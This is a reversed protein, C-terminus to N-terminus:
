KSPRRMTWLSPGGAVPRLEQDVEYGFRGYYALNDQKQTELYCDLGDKDANELMEQQLRTGIGSRQASPDTVLLLLYWLQDKPHAKDIALMYRLGVAMARPNLIMARGAGRLQRVQARMPLPYAGPPVVASVGLLRGTDPHRAGQLQAAPTLSALMSRWFLALGRARRVGHPELFEFFPDDHFARAAVMTSDDLDKGRNTLPEVIFGTATTM